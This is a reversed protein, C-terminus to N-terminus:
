PNAEMYLVYWEAYDLMDIMGDQNLDCEPVFGPDDTHTGYAPFFHDYFDDYTVAGDGDFDGFIQDILVLEFAGIDCIPIGDLNGDLPRVVGRQDTQPCNANNGADIALSGALLAQTQTAGGNDALPGLLIQTAPDLGPLDSLEVLNCSNDSDINYGNSLLGGACDGGTPHDAVITHSLEVTGNNYIGGGLGDPGDCSGYWDEDVTWGASGGEGTINGSITNNTLILSGTNYIGSGHGGHGGCGGGGGYNGGAGGHGGDSSKNSSVTSNTIILTGRNYIGGGDGGDGGDAGWVPSSDRGYGGGRGEGTRNDSVASSTLSLTGTNYIGGGDGGDGGTGGGGIGLPDGGYGGDGTRNESITSNSLLLTGTNCIGGGGGGDGGDESGEYPSYGGGTGNSRVISKNLTLTGTNYIGGGFGGDSGGYSHWGGDGTGNSKVISNNLTLTGTNYIGGGNLGNPRGGTSNGSIISDNLTIRGRNLIGGGGWHDESYDIHGNRITLDNLTLNGGEAVHFIRFTSNSDRQIISGNGNITIEGSISPLGNEGDTSNNASTLDYNGNLALNITAASFCVNARKVAGILGDVDEDAVDFVSSMVDCFWEMEVVTIQSNGLADEYSVEIEDIGVGGDGAYTFTTKGNADTVSTADVGTNPGSLVTFKVVRGKLPTGESDVMTVTVSHTTFVPGTDSDPYFDIDMSTIVLPIIELASLVALYPSDSGPSGPNTKVLINLEGDTVSVEITEVVKAKRGGVALIDYGDLEKVGEITVDILRVGPDYNNMDCFGLNIAYTGIAVPIRYEFGQKASDDIRYTQYLWDDETGSVPFTSDKTNDGNVYVFGWTGNVWQQDHLWLDGQLDTKDAAPNYINNTTGVNIRLPQNPTPVVVIEKETFARAKYSDSVELRARYRHPLTYTYSVPLIATPSTIEPQAIGFNHGLPFWEYLNIYDDSDSAAGGTFNVTLPATGSVPDANIPDVTPMENAPAMKAKISMDGYFVLRYYDTFPFHDVMANGWTDGAALRARFSNDKPNDHLLVM